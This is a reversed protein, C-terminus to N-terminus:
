KDSTKEQEVIISGQACINKNKGTWQTLIVLADRQVKTENAQVEIEVRDPNKNAADRLMVKIWGNDCILDPYGPNNGDLLVLLKTDINKTEDHISISISGAPLLGDDEASYVYQIGGESTFSVKEPSLAVTRDDQNQNCSCFVFATILAIIIVAKRM